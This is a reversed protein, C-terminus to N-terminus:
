MSKDILAADIMDVYDKSGGDNLSKGNPFPPNSSYIKGNKLIFVTPFSEILYKKLLPHAVGLGGTYLNVDGPDTYKGASVSNIWLQKNKDISVSVFVLKRNAKFKEHVGKMLNHLNICNECGTYWFDLIVIKNNFDSLKVSDGKTDPLNFPFFPLRKSHTGKIDVLIEKYITNGSLSLADNFYQLSAPLNSYNMFFLSLLKDRLIGHYNNNITMFTKRLSLPFQLRGDIIAFNELRIKEFVFDVYVPAQVLIDAPLKKNLGFDIDKYFSSNIVAKYLGPFSPSALRYYRIITFYKLGYCNALMVNSLTKGLKPAYKKVISEQLLFCSDMKHSTKDIFKEYQKGNFIHLDDDTLKYNKKYIESECNLKTAGKGSFTYYDKGLEAKIDDGAELIYVNDFSSWSFDNVPNGPSAQAMAYSISMYFMKSPSLIKVQFPHNYKVELRYGTNNASRMNVDTFPYQSIRIIVTTEGNPRRKILSDTIKGDLIVSTFKSVQVVGRAYPRTMILLIATMVISLINKM